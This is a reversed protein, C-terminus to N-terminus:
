TIEAAHLVAVGDPRLAVRLGMDALVAGLTQIDGLTVPMNTLQLPEPSLIAACMLPLAANKAGSVTITGNLRQGGRIRIRDGAKAPKAAQGAAPAPNIQRITQEM